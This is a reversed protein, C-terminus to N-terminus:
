RVLFEFRSTQHYTEGPQLITNPFHPKNPSDPFHQPELCLGAHKVYVHGNKGTISGDLFNATYFQLGPETTFLRMVRGSLPDYLEAAPQTLPETVVPLVFNHDYGPAVDMIDAGIRKPARFDFPTESVSLFKGTPISNSDVETLQEAQIQLVHDLITPNKGASLNFYPHSTLNVPTAKDTTATYELTLTNEVGVTFLVEVHLNGPFGEEGDPSDYILKVSNDSVTKVKWLVKDFGKNGGHLTNGNNNAQLKYHVDGVRFTANGIRNAYRGMLAGFYPSNNDRFDELTSFGLVINDFNEDKDPVLIETITGGYNLISVQMGARNRITHQALLM